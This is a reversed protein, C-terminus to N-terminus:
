NQKRGSGPRKGTKNKPKACGDPRSKIIHGNENEELLKIFSNLIFDLKYDMCIDNHPCDWMFGNGEFDFLYSNPRHCMPTPCKKLFINKNSTYGLVKPNSGGWVVLSKRKFSAVAHQLFSDICIIGNVYPILAIISRIPFCIREAGQILYQNDSQVSGIMYGMDMLKDSIKQTLDQSLNRRYMGTKAILAQEKTKDKPNKGGSHQFLIMPDKFKNIFIKAMEEESNNLFIEPYVSDCPIGIMQCWCEVLHKNRYIYDYHRYPEVDLVITKKDIIFDDYIYVSQGLRHVRKINPNRLFIDPCGAIIHLEKDPYNKKINRIVATAMINKGIGGRVVLLITDADKICRDSLKM